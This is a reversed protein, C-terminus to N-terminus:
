HPPASCALEAMRRLPRACGAIHQIHRGNRGLQGGLVFAHLPRVAEGSQRDAGDGREVDVARDLEGLLLISIIRTLAASASFASGSVQGHEPPAPRDHLLRHVSFQKCRREDRWYQGPSGSGSQRM